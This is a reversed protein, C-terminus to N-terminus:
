PIWLMNHFPPPGTYSYATQGSVWHGFGHCPDGLDQCSTSKAVLQDMDPQQIDHLLTVDNVLVHNTHVGVETKIRWKCYCLQYVKTHQTIDYNHNADNIVDDFDECHAFNESRLSLAKNCERKGITGWRYWTIVLQSTLCANAIHSTM